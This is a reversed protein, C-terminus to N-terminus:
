HGSSIEQLREESVVRRRREDANIYFLLDYTRMAQRILVHLDIPVFEPARLIKPAERKVKQALTEALEALPKQFTKADIDGM